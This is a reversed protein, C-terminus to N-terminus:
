KAAGKLYSDFFQMLYETGMGHLDEYDNRVLDLLKENKFMVYVNGSDQNIHRAYKEICFVEFQNKKTKDKTLRKPSRKREANSVNGFVLGVELDLAEATKLYTKISVNGNGNEVASLTARSIGVSAALSEASVSESVRKNRIARGFQEILSKNEVM